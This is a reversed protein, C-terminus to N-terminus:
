AVNRQQKTSHQGQQRNIYPVANGVSITLYERAQMYLFETSHRDDGIIQKYITRM